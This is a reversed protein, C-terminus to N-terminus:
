QRRRLEFSFKEDFLPNNSGNVVETRCRSKRTEDPVLSMKVIANCLPSSKSTLHRAQIVHVTLLGFNMYASLRIQGENQLVKLPRTKKDDSSMVSPPPAHYGKLPPNPHHLGDPLVNSSVKLRKCPSLIEEYIHEM